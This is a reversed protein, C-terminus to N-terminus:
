SEITCVERAYHDRGSGYSGTVKRGMNDELNTQSEHFSCPEKCHKESLCEEVSKGRARIVNYRGSINAMVNENQRSRSYSKGTISRNTKRSPKRKSFPGTSVRQTQDARWEAHKARFTTIERKHRGHTQLPPCNTNIISQRQGKNNGM